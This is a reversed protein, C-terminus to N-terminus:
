REDTIDCDMFTEEIRANVYEMGYDDETVIIATIDDIQYAFTDEDQIEDIFPELKDWENFGVRIKIAKM